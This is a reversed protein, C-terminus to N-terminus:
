VSAFEGRLAVSTHNHGLVVHGQGALACLAQSARYSLGYRNHRGVMAVEFIM